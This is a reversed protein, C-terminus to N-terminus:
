LYIYFLSANNVRYNRLLRLTSLQKIRIKILGIRTLEQFNTYVSVLLLILTLFICLPPPPPLLFSSLPILSFSSSFYHTYTLSPSFPSSTQISQFYQQNSTYFLLFLIQRPFNTKCSRQAHKLLKHRTM